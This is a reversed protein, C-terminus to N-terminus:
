RIGAEKRRTRGITQLAPAARRDGTAALAAAATMGVEVHSDGLAGILAPVVRPDDIDCLAVAAEIRLGPYSQENELAALLTSLAREGGIRALAGAAARGMVRSDPRMREEDELLAILAPVANRDGLRGLAEAASARRRIDFDHLQGILEAVPGAGPASAADERRARRNGSGADSDEMAAILAPLVRPDRIQGLAVAASGSVGRDRDKLAAILAPVVREDGIEGLAKVAAERVVPDPDDLTGILAPVAISGDGRVLAAMANIKVPTEGESLLALLAPAIRPDEIRGLAAAAEESAAPSGDRLARLLAPVANPGGIAACLGPNNRLAGGGAANSLVSESAFVGIVFVAALGFRVARWPAIAAKRRFALAAGLAAALVATLALLSVFSPDYLFFLLLVVVALLAPFAWGAFVSELVDADLRRGWRLLPLAVAIGALASLSLILFM